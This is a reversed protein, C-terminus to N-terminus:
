FENFVFNEFPKIKIQSSLWFFIKLHPSIDMESSFVMRLAKWAMVFTGQKKRMKRLHKAGDKWLPKNKSAVWDQMPAYM